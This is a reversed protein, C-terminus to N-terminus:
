PDSLLNESKVFAATGGAARFAEYIKRFDPSAHSLQERCWATLAAPAAPPVPVSPRISLSPQKPIYTWSLRRQPLATPKAPQILDGAADWDMELSSAMVRSLHHGCSLEVEHRVRASLYRFARRPQTIRHARYLFLEVVEDFCSHGVPRLANAGRAAALAWALVIRQELMFVGPAAHQRDAFRLNALCRWCRALDVGVMPDLPRSRRLRWPAVVARCAHCHDQLVLGHRLCTAPFALRWVRRFYAEEDETLCAPCFSLGQGADNLTCTHLIWTDSRSALGLPVGVATPLVSAASPHLGMGDPMVAAQWLRLAAIRQRHGDTAQAMESLLHRPAAMDLYRARLPRSFAPLVDSPDLGLKWVIRTAWSSLLEDPAPSLQVPLARSPDPRDLFPDLRGAM